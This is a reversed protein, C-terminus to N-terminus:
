QTNATADHPRNTAHSSPRSCCRLSRLRAPPCTRRHATGHLSETVSRAGKDFLRTWPLLYGCSRRHRKEQFRSGSMDFYMLALDSVAMQAGDHSTLRRPGTVNHFPMKRDAVPRVRVRRLRAAIRRPVLDRVSPVRQEGVVNRKGHREMQMLDVPALYTQDIPGLPTTM